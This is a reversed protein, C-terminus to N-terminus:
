CNHTAPTEDQREKKKLAEMTTVHIKVTVLTFWRGCQYWPLTIKCIVRKYM